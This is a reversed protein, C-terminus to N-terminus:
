KTKGIRKGIKAYFFIMILSYLFMQFDNSLYWGWGYCAFSFDFFNDILLVNRWMKHCEDTTYTIQDWIPGQGTLKLLKWYILIAIVYSPMIRFYRHVVAM